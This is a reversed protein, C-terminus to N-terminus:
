RRRMNSFEARGRTQAKITISPWTDYLCGYKFVCNQMHGTFRSTVDSRGLKGFYDGQSGDTLGRDYWDIATYTSGASRHNLTHVVSNNSCVDLVHEWKYLVRNAIPTDARNTVTGTFRRCKESQISPTSTQASGESHLELKMTTPSFARYLDSYNQRLHAEDELQMGTALRLLDLKVPGPIAQRATLEAPSSTSRQSWLTRDVADWDIHQRTQQLTLQQMAGTAKSHARFADTSNWTEEQVLNRETGHQQSSKMTASASPTVMFSITLAAACTSLGHKLSM